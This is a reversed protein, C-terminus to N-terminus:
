ASRQIRAGALIMEVYVWYPRFKIGFLTATAYRVALIFVAPLFTPNLSSGPM